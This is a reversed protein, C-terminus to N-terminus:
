KITETNSMVDIYLHVSTAEVKELDINRKGDSDGCDSTSWSVSTNIDKEEGDHILSVDALPNFDSLIKILTNVKM